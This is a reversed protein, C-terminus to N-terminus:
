NNYPYIIIARANGCGRSSAQGYANVFYWIKKVITPGMNHTTYNKIISYEDGNSQGSGYNFTYNQNILDTEFHYEGKVNWYYLQTKYPVWVVVKTYGRVELTPTCSIFALDGSQSQIIPLSITIKVRRAPYKVEMINTLIPFQEKPEYKENESYVDKKSNLVCNFDKNRLEVYKEGNEDEIIEFLDSYKDLWEKFKQEDTENQIEDLAKNQMTKLSVFNNEKEWRLREEDSM